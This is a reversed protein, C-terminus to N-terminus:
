AHPGPSTGVLATMQTQVDDPVAVSRHGNTEGRCGSLDISVDVPGTSPYGFQVVDALGFDAPCNYAGGPRPKGTNMTAVLNALKTGTLVASKQLAQPHPDNMGAYRCVSAVAPTGPVLTTGPVSPFTTTSPLKAPCAVPRVPTVSSAGGGGVSLTQPHQDQSPAACGAVGLVLLALVATHWPKRMASM